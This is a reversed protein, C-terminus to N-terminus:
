RHSKEHRLSWAVSLSSVGVLLFAPFAGLAFHGEATAAWIRTSLTPFGIPALLLTAPLEKMATLFVLTAGAMLGPRVLPLVVRRTVTAPPQGLSTGAEFLRPSLDIFAGQVPGLAQPLFRVVHAFVLMALSGYMVPVVHAGFAVLSLAVVIPPLC